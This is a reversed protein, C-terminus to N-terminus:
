DKYVIGHVKKYKLTRNGGNVILGDQQEIYDPLTRGGCLGYAKRGGKVASVVTTLYYIIGQKEAKNWQSKEEEALGTNNYNNYSGM